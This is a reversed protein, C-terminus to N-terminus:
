EEVGFHELIGNPGDYALTAAEQVILKAFAEIFSAPIQYSKDDVSVELNMDNETLASEQAAQEALQAIHENM